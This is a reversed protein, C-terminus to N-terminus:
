TKERPDSVGDLKGLFRDTADVYVLGTGIHDEYMQCVAEAEGKRLVGNNVFVCTLQDGIAKHLLVAAVSSDVGGSLGLIVEDSGVAARIKEIEEDIFSSMQWDGACGAIHFLWNKLIAAGHETHMVEPHFQVGHFNISPVEVAAYPCNDSAALVTAGPIDVIKDGHSMWVTQEVPLDAFLQQRM